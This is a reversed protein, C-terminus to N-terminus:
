SGSETTQEEVYSEVKVKKNWQLPILEDIGETVPGIARWSRGFFDIRCNEWNHTDGKPIALQYVARRGYLNLSNTIEEATLPTILVNDVITQTEVVIPFNFEDVETSSQEFLLVSIGRPKPM